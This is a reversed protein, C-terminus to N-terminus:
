HAHRCAAMAQQQARKVASNSNGVMAGGVRVARRAPTRRAIAAATKNEEAADSTREDYLKAVEANMYHYGNQRIAEEVNESDHDVAESVAIRSGTTERFRELFEQPENSREM